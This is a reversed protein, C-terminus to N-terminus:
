KRSTFAAAIATTIPVAAVLGLSGVLTRVIETAIMERNLLVNLPEGGNLSFLLLLPLSAGAYALVLTNVLSAIHERGIRLGRAWLDKFKLSKNADKLEFVAASQSITIDDLVGLSGIIIGGLLIGKLNVQMGPFMSLFTAEESSFGSLKSLSVFLSALFATLTLSLFTGLVAASTRRSIGHALYLSFLMIILSGTISIFVPNEGAAIRPVIYKLLVFFSIVLGIFSTLGRLGGVAVVAILFAIALFYLSNVRIFDAVYFDETGDIKRIHAVSIKDGAKVKQDDNTLVLGGMQATVKQDKMVGNLIQAEVKQYPQTAGAGLDTTGEEVIRLVKAEHREEPPPTVAPMQAFATKPLVLFLFILLFKFKM